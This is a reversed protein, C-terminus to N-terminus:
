CHEDYWAAEQRRATLYATCLRKDGAIEQETIGLAVLAPEPDRTYGYEHNALESRFMELLYGTGTKDAAAAIKRQRKHQRFMEMLAEQDDKRIFGGGGISVVKERESPSLGLKKMGEEFQRVSFAFAMPFASVEAQQRQKLEKYTIPRRTGSGDNVPETPDWLYPEPWKEVFEILRVVTQRDTGSLLAALEQLSCLLLATDEEHRKKPAGSTKEAMKDQLFTELSEGAYRAAAPCAKGILRLVQEYLAVDEETSIDMRALAAGEAALADALWLMNAGAMGEHKM